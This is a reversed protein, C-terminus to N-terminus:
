VALQYPVRERALRWGAVIWRRIVGRRCLCAVSATSCISVISAVPPPVDGSPISGEAVVVTVRLPIHAALPWDAIKPAVNMAAGKVIRSSPGAAYPTHDNSCLTM